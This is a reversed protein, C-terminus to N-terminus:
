TTGEFCKEYFISTLAANGKIKDFTPQYTLNSYRYNFAASTGM